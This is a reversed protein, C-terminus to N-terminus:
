VMAGSDCPLPVLEKRDTDFVACWGNCVAAVVVFYRQKPDFHLPVDGNWNLHGQPTGAWWQHYHGVFQLRHDTAHFALEARESLVPPTDSIDWLEAGNFPDVSSEKHSFYCDDVILRPQMSAMVELVLPSFRQQFTQPVDRCLSFDHNGWVGTVGNHKLLLAVKGAGDHGKGYADCTDGITIIQDVQRDRFHALALELNAHHDHVDTILGLKM